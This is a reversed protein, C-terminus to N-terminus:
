GMVLLSRYAAFPLTFQHRGLVDVSRPVL